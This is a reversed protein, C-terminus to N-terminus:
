IHSALLYLFVIFFQLAAISEETDQISIFQLNYKLSLKIM